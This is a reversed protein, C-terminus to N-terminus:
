QRQYIKEALTAITDDQALLDITDIGYEEEIIILLDNIGSRDIGMDDQISSLSLDISDSVMLKTRIYEELFGEIQEQEM